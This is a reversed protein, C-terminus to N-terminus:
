PVMLWIAGQPLETDAPVARCQLKCGKLSVTCCHTITGVKICIYVTNEEIWKGLESVALLSEVSEIPLVHSDDMFDLFDACLASNGLNHRHLEIPKEPVAAALPMSAILMAAATASVPRKRPM